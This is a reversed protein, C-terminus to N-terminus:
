MVKKRGKAEKEKMGIRMKTLDSKQVVKKYKYIYFLFSLFM